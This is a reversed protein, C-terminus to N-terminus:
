GVALSVLWFVGTCFDLCRSRQEAGAGGAPLCAFSLRCTQLTHSLPNELEEFSLVCM